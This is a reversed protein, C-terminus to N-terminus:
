GARDSDSAGLWDRVKQSVGARRGSALAELSDNMSAIAQELAQASSGLEALQENTKELRWIAVTNSAIQKGANWIAAAHRDIRTATAILLGLLLALVVVVGAAVVLALLWREDVSM